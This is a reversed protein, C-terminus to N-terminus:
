ALLILAWHRLLEFICLYSSNFLESIIQNQRISFNYSFRFYNVYYIFLDLYKFSALARIEGSFFEFVNHIDSDALSDEMIVLTSDNSM